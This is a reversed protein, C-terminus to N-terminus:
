SCSVGQFSKLFQLKTESITPSDEFNLGLTIPKIDMKPTQKPPAQQNQQEAQPVDIEAVIFVSNSNNAANCEADNSRNAAQNEENDSNVDLEDDSVYGHPVFTKMDVEYDDLEGEEETDDGKLSEGPGGIDWEAESDEDYDFVEEDQKFPRRGNLIRSTKQWTGFYPPRVDEAFQFLRARLTGRLKYNIRFPEYEKSKIISFYNSKNSPSILENDFEEKRTQFDDVHQKNFVPALKRPNEEDISTKSPLKEFYNFMTVKTNITAMIISTM